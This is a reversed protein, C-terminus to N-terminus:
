KKPFLQNLPLWGIGPIVWASLRHFALHSDTSLENSFTTLIDDCYFGPFDTCTSTEDEHTTTLNLNGDYNDGIAGVNNAQMQGQDHGALMYKDM